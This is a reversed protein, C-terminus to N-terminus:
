STKLITHTWLWALECACVCLTCLERCNPFYSTVATPKHGPPQTKSEESCFCFAVSSFALHAVSGAGECSGDCHCQSFPSLIHSHKLLKQTMHAKWSPYIFINSIDNAWISRRKLTESRRSRKETFYSCCVVAPNHLLIWWKTVQSRLQIRLVSM